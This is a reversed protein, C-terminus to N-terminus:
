SSMCQYNKFILKVRCIIPIEYKRGQLGVINHDTQGEFGTMVVSIWSLSKFDKGIKSFYRLFKSRKFLFKFFNFNIENLLQFLRCTSKLCQWKGKQRLKFEFRIMGGQCSQLCDFYRPLAYHDINRVSGQKGHTSGQKGHTLNDLQVDLRRTLIDVNLM